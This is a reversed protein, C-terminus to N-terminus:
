SAFDLGAVDTGENEGAPGEGRPVLENEAVVNGDKEEVACALSAALGENSAVDASLFDSLTFLAGAGLLKKEPMAAAAGAGFGAVVDLGKGINGGAGEAAGEVEAGEFEPGADLGKNGGIEDAAIGAAGVNPAGVGFGISLLVGLAAVGLKGEKPAAAAELGKAESGVAGAAFVFPAKAGAAGENPEPALVLEGNLKAEVAGFGKAGGADVAGVGVAAAGAKVGTAVGVNPALGKSEPGDDPAGANPDPLVPPNLKPDPTLRLSEVPVAAEEAVDVAAPEWCHPADM